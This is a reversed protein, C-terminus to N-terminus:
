AAALRKRVANHLIYLSTLMIIHSIDKYNFYEHLSLKLSHVVIALTSFGFGFLIMGTGAINRKYCFSYQILTLVIVLGANIKILVFQNMIITLLALLLMVGLSIRGFLQKREPTYQGEEVVAKLIYYSSPISSLNMTMWVYKYVEDSFYTKFGHAIVGILTSIGLFLFFGRWYKALATHTTPVMLRKFFILSFVGLLVDTAATMPELIHVGFLDLTTVTENMPQFAFSLKKHYCKSGSGNSSPHM